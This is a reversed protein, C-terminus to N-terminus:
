LNWHHRENKEKKRGKEDEYCKRMRNAEKMGAMPNLRKGCGFPRKEARKKRCLIHRVNISLGNMSLLFFISIWSVKLVILNFYMSFLDYVKISIRYVLTTNKEAEAGARAGVGVGPKLIRWFTWHEVTWVKRISLFYIHVCYQDRSYEMLPLIDMLLLWINESFHICLPNMRTAARRIFVSVLFSHQGLDGNSILHFVGVSDSGRTCPICAYAKFYCIYFPRRNIEVGDIVVNNSLHAFPSAAENLHQLKRWVLNLCDLM